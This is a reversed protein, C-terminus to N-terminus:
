ILRWVGIFFRRSICVSVIILRPAEVLWIQEAMASEVARMVLRVLPPQFATMKMMPIFDRLYEFNEQLIRGNMQVYM